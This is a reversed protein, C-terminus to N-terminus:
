KIFRISLQPQVKITWFHISFHPQVASAGLYEYLHPQVTQYTFNVIM